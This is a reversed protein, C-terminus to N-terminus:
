DGLFDKSGDDTTVYFEDSVARIEAELILLDKSRAGMVTTVKNGAEKLAKAIPYAAATGVGGCVMAAKGFNQIDSPKGLPGALNQIREGVAISGLEITSYGVEQFILTITGTEKQWTALTLPIRESNPHAKLIVFQGPQAKQAINPAQIKIQKVQPNLQQKELIKNNTNQTNNQV